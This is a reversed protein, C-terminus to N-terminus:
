ALKQRLVKTQGQWHEMSMWENMWWQHWVIETILVMTLYFVESTDVM